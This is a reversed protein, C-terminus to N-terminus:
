LLAKQVEKTYIPINLAKREARAGLLQGTMMRERLERSESITMIVRGDALAMAAAEDLEEAAKVFADLKERLNGM